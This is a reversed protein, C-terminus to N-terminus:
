PTIATTPTGYPAQKLDFRIKFDASDGQSANDVSYALSINLSVCLGQGPALYHRDVGGLPIGNGTLEWPTAWSAVSSLSGGHQGTVVKSAPAYSETCEGPSNVAYSTFQVTADDIFDGASTTDACNSDDGLEAGKCGDEHGALDVLSVYLQGSPTSDGSNSSVYVNRVGNIGGPAMHVQNFPVDSPQNPNVTLQLIGAGVSNNPSVNFDSFAAMTSGGAALGIAAVGALSAKLLKSNM